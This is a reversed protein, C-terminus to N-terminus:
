TNRGPAHGPSPASARTARRRRLQDRVGLGFLLLLPILTFAASIASDYFHPDWTGSLMGHILRRLFEVAIPIVAVAVTATLVLVGLVSFPAYRRAMTRDRETWDSEDVLTRRGLARGALNRLYANTAGHLDHCGTVSSLVFYLDTRLFFYFQWTFRLLTLFALGLALKGPWPVSGDAHVSLAAGLTLGCFMVIDGVMGALFPLYRRRREVGQLGVLTTEFVFFYLRRGIALRCPLGLRQGALVHFSEHWAIGATQGVLLVIQVVLLSGSFFVSGPDPRVAPVTVMVLATAAVLLGYCVWAPVSFAAHGLPRWRVPAARVEPEDPERIFGLERLTALFDDMDVAEGYTDSYWRAGDTPSMGNQLQKLLRTADAGFVAYSDVEPRGIVFDEGEMLYTLHHFSLQMEPVETHQVRANEM